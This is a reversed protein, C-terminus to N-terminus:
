QTREIARLKASRARPNAAVEQKSPTLPKKRVWEVAPPIGTWRRGGAQMSEYSGVHKRFVEKVCRDEISHYSIVVMRGGRKLLAIGQELGVRLHEIERNVEMRLAQFTRTAPHIGGRRGGKVRSVLDALWLTTPNDRNAREKVIERAIRRAFREEGFRRILDALEGPNLSRVLDAATLDQNSDMRMDLPAEKMFSFGRRGDEFQASSVGLDLLVGDVARIKMEARIIQAMAAFNGSALWCRNRWRALRENALTLSEGDRDIGVVLGREGLRELIAQAHGGTGLTGDVYIGNERVVLLDIAEGAMVPEHLCTREATVVSKWNGRPVIRSRNKTVLLFRRSEGQLRNVSM